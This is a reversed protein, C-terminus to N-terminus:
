RHHSVEIKGYQQRTIRKAYRRQPLLTLPLQPEVVGPLRNTSKKAVARRQKDPEEDNTSTNNEPQYETIFFM